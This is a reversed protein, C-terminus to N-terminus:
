TCSKRFETVSQGTWRKFARRFANVDDFGARQGVAKTCLQTSRLLSLSSKRQQDAILKRYTQGRQQLQRRLTRPSVGLQKAAENLPPFDGSRRDFLHHLRVGLPNSAEIEHRLSVLHSQYLHILEPDSTKLPMEFWSRRLIVRTRAAGFVVPCDFVERYRRQYSPAPYRLTLSSFRPVVGSVQAGVTSLLCLAEEVFFRYVQPSNSAAAIGLSLPESDGRPIAIKAMMGLAEGHRGWFEEVAQRVSRCSLAAYGLIGFDKADRQLGIELGLGEGGTLEIMNEVAGLYQAPDVLYKSDTLADVDLGTGRVVAALPYGKALMVSVYRRIPTPRLLEIGRTMLILPTPGNPM